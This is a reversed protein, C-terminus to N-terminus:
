ENGFYIFYDEANYYWKRNDVKNADNRRLMIEIDNCLMTKTYQFKEMRILKPDLLKIKKIIDKVPKILCTAGTVSKKEGKSEIDTLKFVPEANAREYKLYGYLKNAGIKDLIARRNERYKSVNGSNHEFGGEHLASYIELKIGNQIAFGYIDTPTRGIGKKEPFIDDMYVINNAITHEIRKENETLRIGKIIKDLLTRLITLKFGYILKDFILSIIEEIKPKINLKIEKSTGYFIHEAKEIVYKNVIENYNFKEESILKTQEDKLRTIYAKLDIEKIIHPQKMHQRQISMNPNLEGEPIFRLYEGSVIIRGSKGMNNKIVREINIIDQIAANFIDLDDSGSKDSGSKDLDDGSGSKSKGLDDGSGSKDSGSKSKSKDLDDDDLDYIYKQLYRYLNEIKVNMTTKMMELILNRYEEIEKDYNFKLLPISPTESKSSGIGNANCAFDCKAMYFCARSFPQDVLSVKTNIGRSTIIPVTKGFNASDYVNEDYNLNCDLANEKLIQEVKGAKIAKEECLRYVKLDISEREDFTTAYQYVSVNRERPPLHLHSGTRIVRGISQELKNINHWPEIIHVERYGFLNLGESAKDSGIFVKVNHERVMNKGMDLYEKAFQSISVDGSYIIYDGRYTTDKLSSELLPIGPQRYRRFGNM